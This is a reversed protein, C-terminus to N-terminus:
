KTISRAAAMASAWAWQLNFGGIRGDVDLIEGLFYIRPLIKSELSPIHVTSLPIGGSTIESKSFGYLSFDTIKYQTLTISLLDRQKRTLQSMRTAANIRADNLLFDILRKPLTLQTLFAKLTNNGFNKNLFLTEKPVNSYQPLFNIHLQGSQNPDERLQRAINRSMNLMAPGSLGFHTFLLSGTELFKKGSTTQYCITCFTSLGSLKTGPWNPFKLPTLAPFCPTVPHGTKQAFEYGWGTSGTKSYSRGGTAVVVNSTHITKDPLIVSFGESMKKIHSVPANLWLQGGYSRYARILADLIDKANNTKPYICGDPEAYTNVGIKDFFSITEQSSFGKLIKMMNKPSDSLYDTQHIKTNTLNCRGHGTMLLKLGPRPMKELIITKLNKRACFVGCALGSAGGGIIAVDFDQPHTGNPNTM